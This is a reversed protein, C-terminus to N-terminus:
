KQKKKGEEKLRRYTPLYDETMFHAFAVSGWICSWLFLVGLLYGGVTQGEVLVGCFAVVGSLFLRGKM